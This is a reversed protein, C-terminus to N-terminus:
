GGQRIERQARLHERYTTSFVHTGDPRAVFYLYKGPAPYLAALLSDLGPSCIPGPPLGRYLYTNYPSAVHLDQYLLREKHGGLAYQVTACSQLAIGARLRNYFVAAIKPRDGALKAEREIISAMIVIERISRGMARARARLKDSVVEDFRAAMTRIIGDAGTANSFFYTDPFLFGELTARADPAAEQILEPDSARALFADAAALGRADLIRAIEKLTAGEPITVRVSLVRGSTLVALVRSGNMGPSLAYTGAKVARESGALRAWVRFVFPNRILGERHLLAAIRAIGAGRPIEVTKAPADGRAAPALGLALWALFALPLGAALLLLLRGHVPRSIKRLAPM